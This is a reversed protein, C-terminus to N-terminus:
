PAGREKKAKVFEESVRAIVHDKHVLKAELDAIRRELKRHAPERQRAFAAAGNEFFKRQWSYFVSPQLRHEECIASIPRGELLHERLLSVKEEATFHRRKTSSM